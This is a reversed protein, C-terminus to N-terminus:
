FRLLFTIICFFPGRRLSTPLVSVDIGAGAKDLEGDSVLVFEIANDLLVRRFDQTKYSAPKVIGRGAEKLGLCM